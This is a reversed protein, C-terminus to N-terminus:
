SGLQTWDYLSVEPYGSCLLYDTILPTGALCLLSDTQLGLTHTQIPAINSTDTQIGRYTCIYTNIYTGIILPIYDILPM